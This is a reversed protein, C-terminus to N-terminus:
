PSENSIGETGKVYESAGCQPHEQRLLLDGHRAIHTHTTLDPRAPTVEIECGMETGDEAGQVYAQRIEMGRAHTGMRAM